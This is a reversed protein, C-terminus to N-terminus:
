ATRRDEHERSLGYAKLRRWLTTRSIGLRRATEALKWRTLELTQVIARREREALTSSGDAPLFVAEGLDDPGTRLPVTRAGAALLRRRLDIDAFQGLAGRARGNAYLLQGQSDFVLVSEPFAELVAGALAPVIPAQVTLNHRM